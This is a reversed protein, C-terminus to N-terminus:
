KPRKFWYVIETTFGGYSAGRTGVLSSMPAVAVLEWGQDGLERARASVSVPLPLVKPGDASVEAWISFTDAHRAQSGVEEASVGRTIVISKYEWAPRAPPSKQGDGYAVWGALCVLAVVILSKFVGDKV